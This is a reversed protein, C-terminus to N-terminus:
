GEVEAVWWWVGDIQEVTVRRVTPTYRTAWRPMSQASRWAILGDPVIYNGTHEDVECGKADLEICVQEYVRDTWEETADWGDVKVGDKFQITMPDGEAWNCPKWAERLVLRDGPSGFPSKVPTLNPVEEGTSKDYVCLGSPKVRRRLVREGAQYSRIERATCNIRHETPPM